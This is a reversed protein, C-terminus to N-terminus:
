PSSTITRTAMQPRPTMFRRASAENRFGPEKMGHDEIVIAIIKDTM